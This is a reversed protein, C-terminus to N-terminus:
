FYNFVLLAAIIIIHWWQGEFDPLISVYYYYQLLIQCIYAFFPPLLNDTYYQAYLLADFLDYNFMKQTGKHAMFQIFERGNGRLWSIDYM